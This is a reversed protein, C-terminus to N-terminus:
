VRNGARRATMVRNRGAAKAEYLLVDAQKLLERSYEATPPVVSAVGISVTVPVRRDGVMFEMAEVAARIREAVVRAGELETEPMIVCFEEGGYRAVNDVPTRMEM